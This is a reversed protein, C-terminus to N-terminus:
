GPHPRPMQIRQNTASPLFNRTLVLPLRLHQHRRELRPVTKRALIRSNSPPSSRNCSFSQRQPFKQDLIRLHKQHLHLHQALRTRQRPPLRRRHSNPPALPRSKQPSSKRASPRALRERRTREKPSHPPTRRNSEPIRRPSRDRKDPERAVAMRKRRRLELNRNPHLKKAIRRPRPRRAPRSRLLHLSPPALRSCM